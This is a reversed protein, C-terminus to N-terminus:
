VMDMSHDDGMGEDEISNDDVLPTPPPPLPLVSTSAEEQSRKLVNIRLIPRSGDLGVFLMYFEVHRYNKIFTPHIKRRGNMLYSIVLNSPGCRLDESKIISAVIDDYLGNHCFFISITKNRM